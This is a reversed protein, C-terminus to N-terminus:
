GEQWAANYLDVLEDLGLKRAEEVYADWDDAISARGYIFQSIMEDAYGKLRGIVLNADETDDTSLKVVPDQPPVIDLQFLEDYYDKRAGGSGLNWSLLKDLPQFRSLGYIMNYGTDKSFKDINVDGSPLLFDDTFRTKGDVVEYTYGETGWTMLTIGEESFIWNMFGLVADLKGDDAIRAPTVMLSDSMRNRAKHVMGAPGTPPLVPIMNFSEGYNAKGGETYRNANGSWDSALFYQGNAVNEMWQTAEITPIEPDFLGAEYLSNLHTLLARYNDSTPEHYWGDGEWDYIMGDRDDGIVGFLPGWLTLMLGMGLKNSYGFKLEPEAAQITTMMDTLADLDAPPWTFGHKEVLDMRVIWAHGQFAVESFAPIGYLDGNVDRVNDVEGGFGFREVLATFNSLKDEHETLNLLVGGQGYRWSDPARVTPLLDPLDGSNLLVQVKEQWESQPVIHPVIIVNARTTIEEWIPWETKIPDKPWEHLLMTLEVPGEAMAADSQPSGFLGAAVFLFALSAVLGKRLASM